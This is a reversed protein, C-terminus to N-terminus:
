GQGQGRAQDVKAATADWEPANASQPQRGKLEDSLLAVQAELAELRAELSVRAAIRRREAIKSM